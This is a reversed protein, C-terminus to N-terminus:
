HRTQAGEVEVGGQERLVAAGGRDVPGYDIALLHRAHGGKHDVLVYIRSADYVPLLALYSRFVRGPVHVVLKHFDTGIEHDLCDFTQYLVIHLRAYLAREDLTGLHELRGRLERLLKAADIPVVAALM